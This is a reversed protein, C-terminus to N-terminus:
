KSLIAEWRDVAQQRVFNTATPEVPQDHSEREFIGQLWASIAEAEDVAFVGHRRELSLRQATKGDTDGIWLIRRGSIEALTLKSPLLLGKMDMRRTVVLVESQTLSEGLKALPVPARWQVQLLGLNAAADQSPLFQPGQGQLILDAQVRRDELKKQIQLLVQIEHARGFNGSYLWCRNTKQGNKISPWIVEPPFPGIVVSDIGYVERLYDRMDEDLTIVQSAGRYARRILVSLLHALTGDKLEGLRVGVDPYVDMVWHFHKARHMKAAIGATVALCAPSTMSIVADVKPHGLSRCLLILHSLGEQLLRGLGRRPKGYSAGTVLVRVVHGRKELEAGLEALIRGTPAGSAFGFQNILLLKM